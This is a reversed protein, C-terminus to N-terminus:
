CLPVLTKVVTALSTVLNEIDFATRTIKQDAIISKISNGEDVDISSVGLESLDDSSVVGLNHQLINRVKVNIRILNIDSQIATLNISLTKRIVKLKEDASLFDFNNSAIEEIHSNINSSAENFDIRVQIKPLAYNANCRLTDCVAKRYIDSLFDFWHQIIETLYLEYLVNRNQQLQNQIYQHTPAFQVSRTGSQGPPGDGVLLQANPYQQATAKHNNIGLQLVVSAGVANSATTAIKNLFDDRIIQM